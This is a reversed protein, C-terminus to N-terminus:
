CTAASLAHAFVRMRFPVHERERVRASLWSQKLMHGCEACTCVRMRFPVHEGERVLASLWSQKLM